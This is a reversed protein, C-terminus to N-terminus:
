VEPRVNSISGAAVQKFASPNNVHGCEPCVLDHNENEGHSGDKSEEPEFFRLADFNIDGIDFEPLEATFEDFGEQTITGYQSTIELLQEKAVTLSPADIRIYPVMYPQMNESIMVRQRQHGDLLYDYEENEAATNGFKTHHYIFFPILFGRKLLVNKLKNYNEATLDKLNGQLPKVTRYDILPLNDPNHIIIRNPTGPDILLGDM